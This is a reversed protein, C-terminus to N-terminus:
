KSFGLADASLRPRASLRLGEALEETAYGGSDSSIFGRCRFRISNSPKAASTPNTQNSTGM